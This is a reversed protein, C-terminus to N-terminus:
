QQQIHLASPHNEVLSILFFNNYDINLPFGFQFYEFLVPIDYGKLHRHWNCINLGSPVTIRMDKYNPVGSNKVLSRAEKVWAIMDHRQLHRCGDQIEFVYQCFPLFGFCRGYTESRIRSFTFNFDIWKAKCGSGLQSIDGEFLGLKKSDVM